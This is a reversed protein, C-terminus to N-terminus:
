ELKMSQAFVVFLIIISILALEHKTIGNPLEYAQKEERKKQYENALIDCYVSIHIPGRLKGATM